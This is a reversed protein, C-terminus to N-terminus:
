FRLVKGLVKGTLGRQAGPRHPPRLALKASRSRKARFCRHAVLACAGIQVGVFQLSARHFNFVVLHLM